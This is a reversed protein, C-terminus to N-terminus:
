KRQCCKAIAAVLKQIDLPKPLNVNMGAEMCKKADEDFANATMAIIPITKADPRNLARITRTATLGDMEPMMIDMVIADFTGPASDRFREVAQKGDGVVTVAAGADTLLTQAIEANLENDEALLLHLGAITEKGPEEEAPLEAPPPAIEFPITLVFTSGVGLQSSVHITGNMQEILRKVISMGLGTGQYVSRADNKEQSFPEFIRDLFEKSMGVGTDTITWRYTCIGDKDGLSEVVTTIKGGPRNYKTCNSYINLFIQRLHLPSGYIYPYPIESKGKEYDWIIGAETARDIVITVIDRTLAYLDIWERTLVTEGDELRSMQLVDNILSLLHNASVMMKEHNARIVAANEFHAEDIKLLGVIGNIPTRIDHSMNALFLSKAKNAAEAKEALAAMEEARQNAMRAAKKQAHIKGTMLVVLVAVLAASIGASIGPYMQLLMYLTLDKAQYFTYQGSIDEILSNPMAYIAKTLIGALAHNVRQSVVIHYNYTTEELLTCTLTGSHERNVLAQATYYYLFAADAKKNLVAEVAEERTNCVLKEANQAYSEDFVASQDVTSVVKIEGSFDTRTVMAMRLTLYPATVASNPMEANSQSNLRLDICLDATGDGRRELYEERTQCPVFEYCIGAYEALAQFYDPLIGKVVGNEVYSYPYRTPDCIVSLPASPNSYEQIVAKEMDTFSLNRNNYNEYFRNHLETRWDGETANMQDIAYNLKDLLAKNGKKVIAYFETSNFKEIIRENETQRLSSTVIADVSGAQLAEAMDVTSSFYVPIYTFGNEEAFSDFDANRSNGELLAVRMGRYTAFDHMIIRTNDSRVTLITSNTGIPRTYDFKREREATKRASTLLDIEGDELMQQMESWSKDYGVYEFDLDQYRSVLQLFDYGYGSPNGNEDMMHYGDMAFFGVRVKERQGPDYEAGAKLPLLVLLFAALLLCGWRRKGTRGTCVTM